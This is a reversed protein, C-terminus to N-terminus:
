RIQRRIATSFNVEKPLSRALEDIRYYTRAEALPLNTNILGAAYILEDSHSPLVMYIGWKLKNQRLANAHQLISTTCNNWLTNYFEPEKTLKDARILMSRLLGQIKEKPTNIPYMYVENKRYNTRLQIIDEENAIVYLLEYQNLLGGVADFSEGREKRIEGSIALHKGDSFSFTLMTHAPGDQDWFPTIVYHVDTLKDLDFTDEYYRATFDIDTTWLHNRINKITVINQSWTIVPLVADVPDWDRNLSAKQSTWWAMGITIGMLLLVLVLREIWYWVIKILRWLVQLFVWFFHILHKM